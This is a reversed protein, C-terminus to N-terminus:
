FAYQLAASLTSIVNNKSRKQDAWLKLRTRRSLNSELGIALSVYNKDADDALSEFSTRAADNIFYAKTTPNGGTLLRQWGADLTLVADAWMYSFQMGPQVSVSTDNADSVSLNIAEADGKEKYADQHTYSVNASVYPRIGFTHDRRPMRGTELSLNVGGEVSYGKYSSKSTATLGTIDTFRRGEYRQVGGLVVTDLSVRGFRSGTYFGARYDLVRMKDEDQKTNSSAFGATLGFLFTDSVQYDWGFQGGAMDTKATGRNTEDSAGFKAYGGLAQAWIKATAIDDGGSRGRYYGGRYRFQPTRNQLAPNVARQQRVRFLHSYVNNSVVNTLPLDQTKVAQIQDRLSNIQKKLDTGAQYYYGGFEKNGETKFMRDIAKAVSLEKADLEPMNAPDSMDLYTIKMNLNNGDQMMTGDILGVLRVDKEFGDEVSLTGAELVELVTYTAGNNYAAAASKAAVFRGKNLKAKEKVTMKKLSGDAETLLAIDGDNTFNKVSFSSGVTAGEKNHLAGGSVAVNEFMGYNNFTGENAINSGISGSYYNFSGTKTNAFAATEAPTFAGGKMTFTGSNEVNGTLTGGTMEFKGAASKLAGSLTGDAMKVSSNNTFDGKITGGNFEVSADNSVAGEITAGEIVLTGGQAAAGAALSGTLKLTGATVVTDGEYTNSGSLILTGGGSKSFGLKDDKNVPNRQIINNSFEAEVDNPIELTYMTEGDAMRSGDLAGLGNLAKGVDLIGAGYAASYTLDVVEYKVTGMKCGNEDCTIGTQKLVSEKTMKDGNEGAKNDTFYILRYKSKSSDKEDVIEQLAYPAFGSFDNNATTLLIDGIQKGSLFPFKEQVLAAAGSVVPAAASTGNFNDDYADDATGTAAYFRVGPASVTWNAAEGALNTFSALFYPNDKSVNPNFAVVSIVNKLSSDNKPTLAPYAPNLAMDNGSAAVLLKNPIGGLAATVDKGGWSANIIKVDKYKDDKLAEFIQNITFCTTCQTGDDNKIDSAAAAAIVANYAVGQMGLDNQAAGIISAVSTGHNQTYDGIRIFKGKDEFEQHTDLFGNDIVAVTVGKGSLGADYAASLNISKWAAYNANFEAESAASTFPFLLFSLSLSLKNM